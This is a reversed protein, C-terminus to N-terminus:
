PQVEPWDLPLQHLTKLDVKTYIFTSNLHRHGLLDAITKLSEGQQLMRTAFGHRFVHSGTRPPSVQAQRLHQVVLVSVTSPSRLPRCPAQDILFVEPYPATPRGHRLYDLLSNGAEDTLPVVVEKSGKTAPFRIRNDRWEIDQLRLARVQSGRVGYTHLLQIIAFDRLGLPTTRDIGALTKRADGDSIGRPVGSLKYSHIPPIAWTLDRELYGEQRCFRLFSRLSGQLQRPLSPARNCTHRTFFDLVQRPSLHVIREALPEGLEDLFPVLCTRHSKITTRALNRECRLYDLYHQLLPPITADPPLVGSTVGQRSLFDIVSRITSGIGERGCRMGHRCRCHPLHRNIFQEAHSGHVDQCDQIGWRRLCQNFHSAQWIRRRTVDRSFGQAHLWECFGDMLPGLPPLRYRAITSPRRFFDELIM